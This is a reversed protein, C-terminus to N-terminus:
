SPFPPGRTPPRIYRTESAPHSPSAPWATAYALAAHMPVGAASVPITFAGLVACDVAAVVEGEPEDQEGDKEAAFLDIEVYQVVGGGCIPILIKGADADEVARAVALHPLVAKVVLLLVIAM